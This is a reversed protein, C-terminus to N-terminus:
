GVLKTLFRSLRGSFALAVFHLGFGAVAAAALNGTYHHVALFVGLAPLTFILALFTSVWIMRYLADPPVGGKKKPFKITGAM